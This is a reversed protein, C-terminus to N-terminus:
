DVLTLDGTFDEERPDRASVPGYPPPWTDPSLHLLLTLQLLKDAAAATRMDPGLLELEAPVMMALGPGLCTGPSDSTM